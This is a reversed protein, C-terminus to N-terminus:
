VAAVFSYEGGAPAFIWNRTEGIFGKPIDAARGSIELTSALNVVGQEDALLEVGPNEVQEPLGCDGSLFDAPPVANPEAIGVLTAGGAPSSHAETVPKHVIGPLVLAHISHPPLNLSIQPNPGYPLPLPRSERVAERATPFESTLSIWDAEYQSPQWNPLSLDIDVTKTEHKNTLIVVLRQNDPDHAAHAVVLPVNVDGVPDHFTPSDLKVALRWGRFFEGYLRFVEGAPRPTFGDDGLQALAFHNDNTNSSSLQFYHAAQIGTEWFVGFMSAVHLAVAMDTSVDYPPSYGMPHINWASVDVHWNGLGLRWALETRETIRRREVEAMSMRSYYEGLTGKTQHWGMSFLHIAFFDIAERDEAAVTQLMHENWKMNGSHDNVGIQVTSDVARIARSVDIAYRAYDEAPWAGKVPFQPECWVRFRDIGFGDPFGPHPTKNLNRFLAARASPQHWPDLNNDEPSAYHAPRKIKPDCVYLYRTAMGTREVFPMDNGMFEPALEPDERWSGWLHGSTGDLCGDFLSVLRDQEPLYPLCVGMVERNVPAAVREANVIIETRGPTPM